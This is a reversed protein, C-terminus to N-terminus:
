GPLSLIPFGPRYLQGCAVQILLDGPVCVGVCGLYVEM